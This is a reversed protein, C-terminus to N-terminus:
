VGLYKKALATKIPDNKVINALGVLEKATLKSALIILAKMKEDADTELKADISISYKFKKM